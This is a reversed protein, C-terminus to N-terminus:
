LFLRPQHHTIHRLLQVDIAHQRHTYRAKQVHAQVDTIGLHLGRSGRQPHHAQQRLRNLANGTALELANQQATRQQTFRVQQHQIFRRLSNIDVALLLEILQNGTYAVLVATTHQHHGMVQMQHHFFGVIHEAQVGMDTTATVRFRHAFM